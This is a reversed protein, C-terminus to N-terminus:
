LLLDQEGYHDKCDGTDAGGDRHRKEIGGGQLRHKGAAAVKETIKVDERAARQRLAGQERKRNRRIDRGRNDDLEQRNRDRIKLIEGLFALFALSPEILNGTVGNHSQREQLRKCIRREQAFGARNCIVVAPFADEDPQDDQHAEGCSRHEEDKETILNVLVADAVANRHDQEHRDNRAAARYDLTHDTIELQSHFARNHIEERNRRDDNQKHQHDAENDEHGIRLPADGDLIRLSDHAPLLVAALRGKNRDLYVHGAHQRDDKGRGKQRHRAGNSSQHVEIRLAEPAPQQKREVIIPKPIRKQIKDEDHAEVIEIDCDLVIRNFNRVVQPLVASGDRADTGALGGGVKDRLDDRLGGEEAAQEQRHNRDQRDPQASQGLHVDREATGRDDNQDAHRKVGDLLEFALHHHSM